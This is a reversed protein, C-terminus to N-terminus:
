DSLAPAFSKSLHVPCLENLSMKHFQLLKLAIESQLHTARITQTTCEPRSRLM